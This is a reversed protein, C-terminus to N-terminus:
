SRPSEEVIAPEFQSFETVINTTSSILASSDLHERIKAIKMSFFENFDNVLETIIAINKKFRIHKNHYIFFYHTSKIWIQYLLWGYYASSAHLNYMPRKCFKAHIDM